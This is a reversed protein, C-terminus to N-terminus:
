ARGAPLLPDGPRVDEGARRIHDRAPPPASVADGHRECDEYPLVADCGDPLLAGTAIEVATGVVLSCGAESGALRRGTVVWPGTGAVAYGDMAASDFAPVPLAARVEAATVLGGAARLPVLRAPRPRPESSAIAHAAAWTTM